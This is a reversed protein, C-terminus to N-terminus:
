LGWIQYESAEAQSVFLDEDQQSQEFDYDLEDDM